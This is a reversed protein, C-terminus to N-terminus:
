GKPATARLSERMQAQEWWAALPKCARWNIDPLRFDLYGLAAASAIAGLDFIESAEMAAVGRLIGARWRASWDKSRQAEPRRGEMVLNFAADMVGDALAQRRLCDFRAVGSAPILVPGTAITDLYECIVRSDYLTVGDDLLLAPIKGLPNAAHLAATDEGLPNTTVVDLAVGKELAVIRTKRAYPSTDSALLKM